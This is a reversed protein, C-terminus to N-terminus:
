DADAFEFVSTNVCSLRWQREVAAIVNNIDFPKLIVEDAWVGKLGKAEIQTSLAIIPIHMTRWDSKIQRCLKTGMETVSIIDVLICCPEVDQVTQLAGEQFRLSKVSFGHNMLILTLIEVISPDREILVITRNM